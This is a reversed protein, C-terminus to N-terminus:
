STPTSLLPSFSNNILGDSGTSTRSTKRSWQVAASAERGDHRRSALGFVRRFSHGWSGCPTAFFTRGRFETITSVLAFPDLFMYSHSGHPGCSALFIPVHLSFCRFRELPPDFAVPFPCAIPPRFRWRTVLGDPFTESGRNDDDWGLYHPHWRETDRLSPHQLRTLVDHVDMVSVLRISRPTHPQLVPCLDRPTPKGPWPRRVSDCMGDFFLGRLM